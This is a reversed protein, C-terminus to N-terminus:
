PLAKSANRQQRHECVDGFDWTGSIVEWPAGSLPIDSACLDGTPGEGCVDLSGIITLKDANGKFELAADVGASAIGPFTISLGPIPWKGVEEGSQIGTTYKFGGDTEYVTITM